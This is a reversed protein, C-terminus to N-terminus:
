VADVCPAFLREAAEEAADTLLSSLELPSLRKMKEELKRNYRRDNPENRQAKRAYQQMFRSLAGALQSTKRKAIM